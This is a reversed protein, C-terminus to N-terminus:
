LVLSKAVIDVFESVSRLITCVPAPCMELSIGKTYGLSVVTHILIRYRALVDASIEALPKLFANSIQVHGIWEVSSSDWTFTDREMTYNGLDYNVRIFPHNVVRVFALTDTLNTLWTCGYATANPEICCTVCHEAGIDGIKRFLSLAEEDTSSCRHRAKPSGFVIVNIGLSACLGAVKRYHEIFIDPNEFVKIDTNFLISQCSSYKVGYSHLLNITETNWSNWETIKTPALEISSIRFRNLIKIFDVLSSTNWVINSVSLTVPLHKLQLEYSIYASLDEIISRYTSWYGSERHRTKLIYSIPTVGRLETLKESFFTDVIKRVSIPPSVLNVESFGKDICVDIDEKINDINYWQFSSDPCITNVQNNHILDYVINKKLGKGFLGPLRMINYIPFHERVFEEMLQRHGGYPHTAFDTGNECQPISCDFIDVTSILIFREAFVSQLITILRQTNEYDEAPHQNIKWKEAPMGCFFITKYSKGILDQINTSNYMDADTIKSALTQGVFGTWGVIAISSM